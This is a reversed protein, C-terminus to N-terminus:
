DLLTVYKVPQKCFVQWQYSLVVHTKSGGLCAGSGHYCGFKVEQPYLSSAFYDVYRQKAGQGNLKTGLTIDVM